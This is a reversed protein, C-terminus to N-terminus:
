GRRARVVIPQRPPRWPTPRTRLRPVSVDCRRGRRRATHGRFHMGETALLVQCELPEITGIALAIAAERFDQAVRVHAPDLAIRAVLRKEPLHLQGPSM